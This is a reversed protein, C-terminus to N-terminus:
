IVLLVGDGVHSKEIGVSVLCIPGFDRANHKPKVRGKFRITRSASEFTMQRPGPPYCAVAITIQQTATPWFM